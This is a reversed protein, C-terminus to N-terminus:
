DPCRALLLAALVAILAAAPGFGPGSAATGGAHTASEPSPSSQPSPSPDPSPTATANAAAYAEPHFRKALRTVAVAIRPAPQNIHQIQVVVTQNQEGATTQNLMAGDIGVPNASNKVIWDPDQELVFEGDVQQYGTVNANAAVNDGGAATILEDIFTGQGATHGFFLYIVDPRDQGEAAQRAVDIRAQMDAATDNAASCHGTLRGILRTDAAVDDITEAKRFAYVTIGIDRLSEITEPDVINPALVLDPSRHAVAEVSVLQETTSLQARSDAGDLYSAYKSVGVVTDRAGIEWMTQAASPALTVVRKPPSEVTVATGTADTVTVPFSCSDTSGTSDAAVGGAVGAIAVFVLATGLL